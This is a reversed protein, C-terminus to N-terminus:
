IRYIKLLNNQGKEAEVIRAKNSIGESLSKTTEYQQFDYTYKKNWTKFKKNKNKEKWNKIKKIKNKVENTRM